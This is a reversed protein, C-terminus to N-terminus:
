KLIRIQNDGSGRLQEIDCVGCCPLDNLNKLIGANELFYSPAFPSPNVPSVLNRSRNLKRLLELSIEFNNFSSRYTTLNVMM